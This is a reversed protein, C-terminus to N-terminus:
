GPGRGSAPLPLIDHGCAAGAVGRGAQPSLSPHPPKAVSQVRTRRPEADALNGPPDASENPLNRANTGCFRGGKGKRFPRVLALTSAIEQLLLQASRQLEQRASTYGGHKLANTNGPQAGRRRRRSLPVYARRSGCRRSRCDGRGALPSLTLTLPSRAPAPAPAREVATDKKVRVRARERIPLPFSLESRYHTEMRANDGRGLCLPILNKALYLAHRFDATAAVTRTPVLTPTGEGRWRGGEGPDLGPNPPGVSLLGASAKAPSLTLPNACAFIRQSSGPDKDPIVVRRTTV